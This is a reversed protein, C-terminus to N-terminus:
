NACLQAPQDILRRIRADDVTKKRSPEHLIRQARTRAENIVSGTCRESRMAAELARIAIEDAGEVSLGKEAHAAVLFWEDAFARRRPWGVYAEIVFRQEIPVGQDQWYPGCHAMPGTISSMSERTMFVWCALEHHLEVCRRDPKDQEALQRLDELPGERFDAPALAIARALRRCSSAHVAARDAQIARQNIAYADDRKGLEVFTGALSDLRDIGGLQHKAILREADDATGATLISVIDLRVAPGLQPTVSSQLSVLTALGRDLNGDAVTCWARLYTTLDRLQGSGYRNM